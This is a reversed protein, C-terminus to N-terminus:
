FVNFASCRDDLIRVFAENFVEEGVGRLTEGEYAQWASEHGLSGDEELAFPMPRLDFM